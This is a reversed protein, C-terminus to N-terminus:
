KRNVLEKLGAWRPDSAESPCRCDKLNRDAGCIACFGKCEERCLSRSPVALLIQERAIEDIDIAEGDFVSLTLDGEELEAAQHIEYDEATVYQLNFDAVVPVAVSKLCRDCDVEARAAIRGDVLVQKGKPRLEGSIRPPEILRVRDDVFELEGTEYGHTFARPKGELSAIEIRVSGGVTV